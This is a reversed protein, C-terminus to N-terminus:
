RTVSTTSDASPRRGVPGVWRVEGWRAVSLVGAGLTRRHGRARRRRLRRPGRFPAAPSRPLGTTSPWPPTRPAGPAAPTPRPGTRAQCRATTARHSPIPGAASPARTRPTESAARDPAPPAPPTRDRDRTCSSDRCRPQRALTARGRLSDRPRTGARGSSRNPGPREHGHRSPSRADPPPRATRARHAPSRGRLRRHPDPTTHAPRAPLPAPRSPVPRPPRLGERHPSPPHAPLRPGHGRCPPASLQRV